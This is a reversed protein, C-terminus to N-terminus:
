CSLRRRRSALGRGMAVGRELLHPIATTEKVTWCVLASGSAGPATEDQTIYLMPSLALTATVAIGPVTPADEGDLIEAGGAL